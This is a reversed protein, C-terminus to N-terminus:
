EEKNKRVNYIHACYCLENALREITDMESKLYYDTYTMLTGIIQGAAKLLEDDTLQQWFASDQTRTRYNRSITLTVRDDCEFCDPVQFAVHFYLDDVDGGTVTLYEKAVDFAHHCDPEGSVILLKGRVTFLESDIGRFYWQRINKARTM